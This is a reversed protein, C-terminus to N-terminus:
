AAVRATVIQTASRDLHAMIQSGAPTMAYDCLAMFGVDTLSDGIGVTLRPGPPALVELYYSVAQAKGLFPPLAAQNAGNVHLTWDLPVLAALTDAVVPALRGEDRPPKVSLYLPLGADEIIEIRAPAQAAQAVRRLREAVDLLTPAFRHAAQAMREHWPLCPQGDAGLIVGGFSCIAEPGLGGVLVRRWAAVSRGTVPVLHSGEALWALFAAQHDTQYSLPQGHVDHTALHRAAPNKRATQFLTDDLDVLILRQM